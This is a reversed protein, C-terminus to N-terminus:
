QPLGTKRMLAAFRQNNKAFAFVPDIKLVGPTIIFAHDAVTAELSRYFNATDGVGLYAIALNHPSVYREKALAVLTDLLRLAPAHQKDKSLAYVLAGTMVPNDGSLAMGLRLEEVAKHAM